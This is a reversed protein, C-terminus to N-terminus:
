EGVESTLFDFGPMADPEGEGGSRAAEERQKCAIVSAWIHLASGITYAAPDSLIVTAAEANSADYSTGHIRM